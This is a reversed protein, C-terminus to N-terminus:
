ECRSDWHKSLVFRKNAPAVVATNTIFFSTSIFVLCCCATAPRERYVHVGVVEVLKKIDSCIYLSPCPMRLVPVSSYSQDHLLYKDQHFLFCVQVYLWNVTTHGFPVNNPFSCCTLCVFLFPQFPFFCECLLLCIPFLAFFGFLVRTYISTAIWCDACQRM